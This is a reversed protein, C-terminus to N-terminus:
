ATLIHSMTAPIRTESKIKGTNRVGRYYEKVLASEM